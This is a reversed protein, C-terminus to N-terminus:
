NQSEYLAILKIQDLVGPIQKLAYQQFSLYEMWNTGIQKVIRRHTRTSALYVGRTSM